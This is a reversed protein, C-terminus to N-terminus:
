RESFLKAISLARAVAQDMDYYKYDGLRGLFTVNELTKAEQLYKEYLRINEENIIPYYRENKGLVFAEPYEYSVM